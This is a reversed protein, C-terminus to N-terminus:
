AEEDEDDDEDLDDEDDLDDDDDLEEDGAEEEQARGLDLEDREDGTGQDQVREQGGRGPRTQTTQPQNAM